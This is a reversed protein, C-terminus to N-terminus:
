WISCFNRFQITPWAMRMTATPIDAHSETYASDSFIWVTTFLKAQGDPIADSDNLRQTLCLEIDAAKLLIAGGDSSSDPQDFSITVPKHFEKGFLVSQTASQTM